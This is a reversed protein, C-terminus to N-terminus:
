GANNKSRGVIDATGEFGIYALIPLLFPVMEMTELELGFLLNLTAVGVGLLTLIFKRSKFPSRKIPVRAEEKSTVCQYLEDDLDEFRKVAREGTLKDLPDLELYKAIIDLNIAKTMLNTHEDARTGGLNKAVEIKIRAVDLTGPCQTNSFDKHVYIDQATLNYKKCLNTVLEISSKYTEGTAKKKTTADHEIGISELNVPWDTAHWATNKDKVWQWVKTGSIGYHASAEGTSSQFRNNASTLTGIGIWHLLIKRVVNGQRGKTFNHDTGKWIIKM